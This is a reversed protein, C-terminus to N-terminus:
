NWAWARAASSSPRAAPVCSRCRGARPWLRAGLRPRRHGSGAAAAPGAARPARRVPRRQSRDAPAAAGHARGGARGPQRDHGLLLRHGAALRLPRLDAAPPAPRQRRPQRLPRPLHAARRHRHDAAARLAPVVQHPPAPHRRPAHGPQHGRGPRGVPHRVPHPGAHRRRLHLLQDGARRGSEARGARGGPRPRPGQHPLPVPGAGHSRRGAGPSHAPPLVPVQGVGHAHRRRRGRRGAGGDIRRPRTATCRSSAVGPWPRRDAAPGAVGADAAPRGTQGPDPRPAPRREGAVPEALIRALTAEVDSPEYYRM